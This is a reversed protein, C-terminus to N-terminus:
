QIILYHIELKNHKHLYTSTIILQEKTYGSVGKDDLYKDIPCDTVITTGMPDLKFEQAFYGAYLNMGDKYELPDRNAFRGMEPDFYRASLSHGISM